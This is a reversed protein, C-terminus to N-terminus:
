LVGLLLDLIEVIFFSYFLFFVHVFFIYKM